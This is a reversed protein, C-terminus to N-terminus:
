EAFPTQILVASCRAFCASYMQCASREILDTRDENAVAPQM